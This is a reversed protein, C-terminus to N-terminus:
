TFFITVGLFIIIAVTVAPEDRVARLFTQTATM